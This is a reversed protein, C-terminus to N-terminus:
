QRNDSEFKFSRYIKSAAQKSIDFHDGIKEFSWNLEDRMVKIQRARERLADEYSQQIKEFKQPTLKM